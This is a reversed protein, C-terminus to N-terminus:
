GKKLSLAGSEAPHSLAGRPDDEAVLALEGRAGELRSQIAGIASRAGSRLRAAVFVGDAIALLPEVAAISGLKELALVAAMKVELEQAALATLLAAEVGAANAELLALKELAAVRVAVSPHDKVVGYHALDLAGSPLLRIAQARLADTADPGFAIESLVKVAGAERAAMLRCELDFGEILALEISRQRAAGGNMGLLLALQRRRVEPITESAFSAALKDELTAPGVEMARALALVRKVTAVILGPEADADIVVTLTNGAASVELALLERRIERTLTAALAVEDGKLGYHHDFDGDGTTIVRRVLDFLDPGIRWTLDFPMGRRVVQIRTRPKRGRSFTVAVTRADVEGVLALDLGLQDARVQLGLVRAADAYRAVRARHGAVFVFALGMFALIAGVGSIIGPDM